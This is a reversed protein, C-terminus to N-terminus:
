SRHRIHVAQFQALSDECYLRAAGTLYPRQTDTFRTLLHGDARITITPGAQTVQVRHARGLVVAFSVTLLSAILVLAPSSLLFLLDAGGLGPMSRLVLPILRWSQLNGQFWRARQRILRKIEVVGQQHV